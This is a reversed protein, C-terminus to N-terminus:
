FSFKLRLFYSQVPSYYDGDKAFFVQGFVGFDWNEAISYSLSPMVFLAHTQSPSYVLALNANILPSLTHSLQGFVSWEYPYLNRASLEFNTVGFIDADSSGNSNFLFGGGIFLGNKFSYEAGMTASFSVASTDTPVFTSAEGKFGVNGLNGAWGIGGVVHESAWGTMLQFDYNWKNIKWLLGAVFDPLTDAVNVALEISSAAGSYYKIRLGDSGPREEYDFDTFNYANFIDHPNWFTNIGWNIRQRGLRLEWDGKVYELYFRDVTSNFIFNKNNVLDFSLDFFDNGVDGDFTGALPPSVTYFIRNRIGTRFTFKDNIYWKFNLRNHLLNDVYSFTTTDVVRTYSQLKKVYGGLEWKREKEQATLQTVMFFCLLLLTQRPLHTAGYKGLANKNQDRKNM